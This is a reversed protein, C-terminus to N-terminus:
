DGCSSCARKKGQEMAEDLTGSIVTSKKLHRCNESLHWVEGNKTWFVVDSSSVDGDTIEEKEETRENNESEQVKNESNDESKEQESILDNEASESSFVRSKIESMKSDDLLEGGYFDMSTADTCSVLSFVVTLVSFFVIIRKM